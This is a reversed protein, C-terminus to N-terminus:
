DEPKSYEADLAEQLARFRALTKRDWRIEALSKRSGRGSIPIAHGQAAAEGIQLHELFRRPAFGLDRSLKALTDDSDELSLKKVGFWRLVPTLPIDASKALKAVRQYLSVPEFARDLNAERLRNINWALVGAERCRRQFASSARAANLLEALWEPPRAKGHDKLTEKAM